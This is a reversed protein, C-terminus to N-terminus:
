EASFRYITTTRYEEGPKLVVSPFNPHNPSDPFHQTELCCGSYKRYPRNGKGVLSGDLWSGAYFQLGPETTIVELTRGSEPERLTAVTRLEDYAGRLVVNHDYGGGALRMQEDGDNLHAGIAIASTFDMPTDRVPRLEGTPILTEDVPTFADAYITLEHDLITGEGALNFYSHNTLNVITAADTTAFYEIRLENADTLQYTVVAELNGPYGEEGDWSRYTLCLGGAIEAADWVVKDFGKMGGHLHNKGNNIPLHYECGNLAFTGRKIRNGYRGVLAGFYRSRNLYGELADHGLVVDAVKGHRDPVNLNTIICGYNIVKMETGACNNLTFLKVERGDPMVGFHGSTIKM